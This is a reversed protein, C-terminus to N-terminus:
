VEELQRAIDEIRKEISENKIEMKNVSEKVEQISKLLLYFGIVIIGAMIGFGIILGTWLDTQGYIGDWHMMM